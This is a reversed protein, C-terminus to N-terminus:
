VHTGGDARRPMTSIACDREGSRTRPGARSAATCARRRATGTDAARVNPRPARAWPDVGITPAIDLCHRNTM